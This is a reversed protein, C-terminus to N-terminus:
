LDQKSYTISHIAISLPAPSVTPTALPTSDSANSRRKFMEEELFKSGKFGNLWIQAHMM